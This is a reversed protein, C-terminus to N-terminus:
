GLASAALKVALVRQMPGILNGALAPRRRGLIDLSVPLCAWGATSAPWNFNAKSSVRARAVPRNTTGRKFTITVVAEKGSEAPCNIAVPQVLALSDFLRILARVRQYNTVSRSLFPREGPVGNTVDIDRVGAPIRGSASRAVIWQSQAAASLLTRGSGLSTVQLQLWRAGLVGSVSPWARIVSQFAPPGGSGTGEVKSGPPLHATVFSLVASADEGVTWSRRAAASDLAGTLLHTHPGIGTSSSQVVAGPPAVVGALLQRADRIATRRHAGTAPNVPSSVGNDTRSAARSASASPSAMVAAITACTACAFAITTVMRLRGSV